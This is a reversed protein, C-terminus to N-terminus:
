KMWLAGDSRLLLTTGDSATAVGKFTGSPVTPMEWGGTAANLKYVLGSSNVGWVNSASGASIWRLSGASQTWNLGTWRWISDDPKLAWGTGDAAVSVSAFMENMPMFGTGTWRYTDGASNVGWVNSASGVSIQKLGGPVPTGSTGWRYIAYNADVGWRAGDNGYAVQALAMGDYGWATGNWAYHKGSVIGGYRDASGVTVSTFFAGLAVQVWNTVPVPTARVITSEAGKGIANYAAVTCNYAAGNTLGRITWSYRVGGPRSGTVDRNNQESVCGISYNEIASGGDSAPASWNLIISGNAPTATVRTPAGPVTQASVPAALCGVLLFVVAMPLLVRIPAPPRSTLSSM